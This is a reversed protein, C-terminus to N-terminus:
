GGSSRVAALLAWTLGGAVLPTLFWLLVMRRVLPHRLTEYSGDKRYAVAFVAAAHVQVLSQPIGQWSALLLLTGIVVNVITASYLGLPVTRFGITRAPAEIIRGGVGFLPAFLLLGPLVDLLGAASVPGVVNAVNNAGIAASVYCSGAVVIARLKWEHKSLHEYVRFNWGRLPYFRKVVFATVAFSVMPLAIWAPLLRRLLTDLNLNGHRLGVAAVSFVTVWTTSQPIKLANAVALAAAASAIVILVTHPDLSEAPVLGNALTAAVFRGFWLAGILVFASYALVAGGRGILRAGLAASFAPAFGSGGMNIAFFVATAAVLLEIPGLGSM